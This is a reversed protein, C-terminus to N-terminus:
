NSIFLYSFCIGRAGEAFDHRVGLRFQAELEGANARFETKVIDEWRGDGEHQSPSVRTIVSHSFRFHTYVACCAAASSQGFVCVLRNKPPVLPDAPVQAQYHHWSKPLASPVQATSSM